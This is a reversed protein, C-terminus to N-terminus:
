RGQELRAFQQQRQAPSLADFRALTEARPCYLGEGTRVRISKGLRPQNEAVLALLYSYTDAGRASSLQNAIRWLTEGAAVQHCVTQPGGAAPASLTLMVDSGASLSATHSALAMDASAVGEDGKAGSMGATRFTVGLQALLPESEAPDTLMDVGGFAEQPTRFEAIFPAVPQAHYDPSGSGQQVIAAVQGPAVGYAMEDIRRLRALYTKSLQAEGEFLDFPPVLRAPFLIQWRGHKQKQALPPFQNGRWAVFMAPPTRALPYYEPNLQVWTQEAIPQYGSIVVQAVSLWSGLM